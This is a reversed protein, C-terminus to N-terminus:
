RQVTCIIDDCQAAGIAARVVVSVSCEIARTHMIISDSGRQREFVRQGRQANKFPRWRSHDGHFTGSRRGAARRGRRAVHRRRRGGVRRWLRAGYRM